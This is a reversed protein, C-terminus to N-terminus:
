GTAAPPAAAGEPPTPEPEATLAHAHERLKAAQAEHAESQKLLAAARAAPDARKQRALMVAHAGTSAEEFHVADETIAVM